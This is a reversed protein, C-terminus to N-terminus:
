CPLYLFKKEPFITKCGPFSDGNDGSWIIKISGQCKAIRSLTKLFYTFDRKFLISFFIGTTYCIERCLIKWSRMKPFLRSFRSIMNLFGPLSQSFKVQVKILKKIFFYFGPQTISPQAPQSGTIHIRQGGQSYGRDSITYTIFKSNEPLLDFIAPLHFRCIFPQM